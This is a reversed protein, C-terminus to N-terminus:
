YRVGVLFTSGLLVPLTPSALAVVVDARLKLGLYLGARHKEGVPLVDISAAAFIGVIPAATHETSTARQLILEGSGAGAGLHTRTLQWEAHFAGRIMDAGLGTPLSGWFGSFSGFFAVHRLQGGLALTGEGGTIPIGFISFTAPGGEARLRFGDLDGRTKGPPHPAWEKWDDGPGPPPSPEDILSPSDPAGDAWARAPASGLLLPLM